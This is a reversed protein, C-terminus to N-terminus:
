RGAAAVPKRRDPQPPSWQSPAPDALLTRLQRVHGPAQVLECFDSRLQFLPGSRFSDVLRMLDATSLQRLCRLQPESLRFLYCASTGDRLVNAHLASLGVLNFLQVDTVALMKEM